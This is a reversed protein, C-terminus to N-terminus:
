TRGGIKDLADIALRELEQVLKNRTSGGPRLFIIERLARAAEELDAEASELKVNAEDCATAWRGANDEMADREKTMATLAAEKERLARCAAFYAWATPRTWVTGHDDTYTEDRDRDKPGHHGLNENDLDTM